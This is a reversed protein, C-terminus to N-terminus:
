VHVPTLTPNSRKFVWKRRDITLAYAETTAAPKVM